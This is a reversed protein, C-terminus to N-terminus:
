CDNNNRDAGAEYNGGRTGREDANRFGNQAPLDIVFYPIGM